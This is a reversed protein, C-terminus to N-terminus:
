VASQIAMEKEEDTLIRDMNLLIVLHNELKAMGVIFERGVSAGMAPPPDIQNENITRVKTVSDVVLGIIQRDIEVVVIRTSRDHESEPMGFRRRLDVVPIVQGRLNLVGEVFDSFQPVCTLTEYRIIEQVRLIPIGYEEGGLTFSVFQCFGEHKDGTEVV